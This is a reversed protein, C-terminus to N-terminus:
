RLYCECQWQEMQEKWLELDAWYLWYVLLVIVDTADTLKLIVIKENSAAKPVYSVMTVDAQNAIM